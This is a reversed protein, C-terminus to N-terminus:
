NLFVLPQALRPYVPSKGMKERIGPGEGSQYRLPDVLPNHYLVSGDDAIITYIANGGLFRFSFSQNEQYNTEFDLDELLDLGFQRLGGRGFFDITEENQNLDYGTIIGMGILVDTESESMALVVAVKKKDRILQDLTKQPIFQVGPHVKDM